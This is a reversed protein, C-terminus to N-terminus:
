SLGATAGDAAEFRVAGAEIVHLMAASAAPPDGAEIADVIKEHNRVNEAQLETSETPSSVTFSAILAAEIVGAISRMLSNGSAAGVALHFDLDAEAFSRRSHGKAGMREILSRLEAISASDRRQAALEAARPEVLRRIEFLERRFSDDLGLAVRWSLVTADFLNWRVPDSVRTGVRTKASVLGKAALTKLVERLVTRSVEFRALLEAEVPLNAGPPYAGSLIETGLVRAIQDHSSVTKESGIRFGGSRASDGAGSM